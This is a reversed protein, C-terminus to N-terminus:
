DNRESYVKQPITKHCHDYIHVDNETNFLKVRM